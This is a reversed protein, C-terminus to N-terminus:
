LTATPGLASLRLWCQQQWSQFVGVKVAGPDGSHPVSSTPDLLGWGSLKSEIPSFVVTNKKKKKKKQGPSLGGQATSRGGRPSVLASFGCLTVNGSATTERNCLTGEEVM